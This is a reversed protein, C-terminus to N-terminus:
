TLILATGKIIHDWIDREQISFDEWHTGASNGCFIEPMDATPSQDLIQDLQGGLRFQSHKFLRLKLTELTLDM